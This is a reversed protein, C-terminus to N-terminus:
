TDQRADKEWPNLMVCIASYQQSIFVANGRKGKGVWESVRSTVHVSCSPVQSRNLRIESFLICGDRPLVTRRRFAPCHDPYLVATPFSVSEHGSRQSMAAGEVKTEIAWWPGSDPFTFLPSAAWLPKRLIGTKCQLLCKSPQPPSTKKAM